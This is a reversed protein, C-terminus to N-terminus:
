PLRKHTDREMLPVTHVVATAVFAQCRGEVSSMLQPLEEAKEQMHTTVTAAPICGRGHQEHSGAEM